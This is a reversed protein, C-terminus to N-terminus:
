PNVLRKVAPWDLQDLMQRQQDRLEKHTNPLRVLLARAELPSSRPRYFARNERVIARANPTGPSVFEDLDLVFAPSAREERSMAAIRARLKDGFVTLGAIRKDTEARAENMIRAQARAADAATKIKEQDKGEVSFILARLYEERTVPLTPSEGNATFLIYVGESNEEQFHGYTAISGFLPESRAREYYLGDGREDPMPRDSESWAQPNPNFAFTLDSGHEDYKSCRLHVVISLEYASLRSRDPTGDYGWAPRVAFGRPTAYPTKRVLAEASGLKSEIRARDGPSISKTLTTQQFRPWWTTPEDM